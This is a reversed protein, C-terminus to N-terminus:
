EERLAAVPDLSAARRAPLLSALAAVAALGAVALVLTQPDSPRLGFLLSEAAHAAAVALVAGIALGIGFLVAAERLVMRLIDRRGAGMAMRVGIENRRRVVMYSMVGYLGIMALLAALFGFFGSLTAMLRERILGDRVMQEFPRFALVLSPNWETLASKVAAGVAAPPLDSRIVLHTWQFLEQDQADPMYIIPAFEERLDGYKSDKVLGVIRFRREEAGAPGVIRFTRGIPSSGKLLQRVFTETVIAVPEADERDGDVFDRGGLLPTGMTRFYGPTVRNCNAVQRQIDTGDVAISENWGNGSAPVVWVGAAATVGPIARIRELLERKFAVRAEKPLRLPWFDVTTSLIRDRQFGPDLTLLNRLTRVFLLAGVLLVLSLSVQCVVLARRVAPRGAGSGALGRGGAKLAEIPRTRAAQLAPLLGFLLCTLGALGATFAFLRWDPALNVFWRSFYTRLFAVLSRGFFQALAAGAAAGLAALVFSEALLQRVLRRPSAGLALRVAIERRRASAKAVMLNALNACAILLVLGSIGLLLWLPSKYDTRLTSFGSAVPRTGLKFGLYHEGDVADYGPPLTAQFIGPAITKLHADARQLTWGPKLRGVVALWWAAPDSV